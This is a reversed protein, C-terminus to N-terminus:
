RFRIDIPRRFELIMYDSVLRGTLNRQLRGSILFSHFRFRLEAELLYTQFGTLSSATRQAHFKVDLNRLLRPFYVEAKSLSTRDSFVASSFREAHTLYVACFSFGTINAEGEVGTVASRIFAQTGTYSVDSRTARLAVDFGSPAAFRGEIRADNRMADDGSQSYEHAIDNRVLVSGNEVPNWTLGGGAKSAQFYGRELGYKKVLSAEISASLEYHVAESGASYMGDCAVYSRDASQRDLGNIAAHM